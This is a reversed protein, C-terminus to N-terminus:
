LSFQMLNQIFKDCDIKSGMYILNSQDYVHWVGEPKSYIVRYKSKNRNGFIPKFLRM